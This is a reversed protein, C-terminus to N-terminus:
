NLNYKEEVYKITEKIFTDELDPYNELLFDIIAQRDNKNIKEFESWKEPSLSDFLKDSLKDSVDTLIMKAKGRYRLPLKKIAEILNM